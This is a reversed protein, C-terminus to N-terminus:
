NDKGSIKANQEAYYRAPGFLDALKKQCNKCQTHDNEPLGPDCNKREWKFM